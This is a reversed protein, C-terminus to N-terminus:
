MLSAHWLIEVGESTGEDQHSQPEHNGRDGTAQEILIKHRSGQPSPFSVM